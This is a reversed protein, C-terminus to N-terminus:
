NQVILFYLFTVVMVLLASCIALGVLRYVTDVFRNQNFWIGFRTQDLQHGIAYGIFAAAAPKAFDHDYHEQYDFVGNDSNM